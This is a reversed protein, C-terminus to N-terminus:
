FHLRHKDKQTMKIALAIRLSSIQIELPLVAECEYVLSFPTAKTPTRVMTHYVWLCEGLKEDWNHQSKSIFKKFLKGLTKNFAEVLDNAALYYTM